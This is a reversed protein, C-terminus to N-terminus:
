HDRYLSKSSTGVGASKGGYVLEQVSVPFDGSKGTPFSGPRFVSIATIDAEPCELLTSFTRSLRQPNTSTRSDEMQAEGRPQCEQRKSKHTSNAPGSGNSQSSYNSGSRTPTM